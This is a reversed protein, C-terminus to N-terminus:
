TGEKIHTIYPALSTVEKLTGEKIHITYTAPIPAKFKSRESLPVDQALFRAGGDMTVSSLLLNLAGMGAVCSIIIFSIIYVM